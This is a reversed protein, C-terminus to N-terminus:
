ALRRDPAIHQHSGGVSRSRNQAGRRELAPRIGGPDGCANFAEAPLLGACPGGRHLARRSGPAAGALWSSLRDLGVGGGSPEIRPPEPLRGPSSITFRGFTSCAVSWRSWTEPQNPGARGAVRLARKGALHRRLQYPQAKTPFATSHRGAEYLQLKTEYISRSGSCGDRWTARPARKRQACRTRLLRNPWQCIQGLLM